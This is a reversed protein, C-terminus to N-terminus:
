IKEFKKNYRMSFSHILGWFNLIKATIYPIYGDFTVYNSNLLDFFRKSKNAEVIFAANVTIILKVKKDDTHEFLANKDKQNFNINCFLM